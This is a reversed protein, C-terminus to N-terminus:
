EASNEPPNEDGDPQGSVGDQEHKPVLHDTIEMAQKPVERVFMGDVVNEKGLSIVREGPVLGSLVQVYDGDRIGTTIVRERAVFHSAEPKLTQPNAPNDDMLAGGHLPEAEEFVFVEKREITDIVTDYPIMIQDPIDRVKIVFDAYNGPILLNGTNV